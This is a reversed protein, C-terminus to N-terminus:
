QITIMRRVLLLQWCLPLVTALGDVDLVNNRLDISVCRLNLKLTSNAKLPIETVPFPIESVPVGGAGAAEFLVFSLVLLLADLTHCPFKKKLQDSLTHCSIRQLQVPLLLKESVAFSGDWTSRILIDLLFEIPLDHLFSTHIICYPIRYTDRREYMENDFTVETPILSEIYCSRRSALLPPRKVPGHDPFPDCIAFRLHLRFDYPIGRCM